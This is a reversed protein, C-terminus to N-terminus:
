YNKTNLIELAAMEADYLRKAVARIEAAIKRLQGATDEMDCRLNDGKRLYASANEGKWNVSITQMSDTFEQSALRFIGGAIQDLQNAQQKAKEFNFRIMAESLSM